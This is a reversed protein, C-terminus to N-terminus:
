QVRLAAQATRACRASRGRPGQGEGEARGEARGKAEGEARGKAQQKKAFESQFRLQRRDDAGGARGQGGRLAARGLVEAHAEGGHAICSLV